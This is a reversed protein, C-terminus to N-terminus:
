VLFSQLFYRVAPAPGRQRLLHIGVGSQKSARASLLRGPPPQVFSAAHCTVRSDSARTSTHIISHQTHMNCPRLMHVCRVQPVAPM